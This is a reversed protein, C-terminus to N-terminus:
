LLFLLIPLGGNCLVKASLKASLANGGAELSGGGCACKRQLMIGQSPRLTSMRAVHQPSNLMRLVAQNGRTSQMGALVQHRAELPSSFAANSTSSLSYPGAASHALPYLKWEPQPALQSKSQMTETKAESTPAHLM